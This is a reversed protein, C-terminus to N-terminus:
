NQTEPPNHKLTLPNKGAVFEMICTNFRLSKEDLEYELVPATEVLEISEAESTPLCTQQHLTSALRFAGLKRAQNLLETLLVQQWSQSQSANWVPRTM